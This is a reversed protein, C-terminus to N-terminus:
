EVRQIGSQNLRWCPTYGAHPFLSHACTRTQPQDAFIEVRGNKLTTAYYFTMTELPDNPKARWMRFEFWALDGVYVLIALAALIGLAWRLVDKPRV